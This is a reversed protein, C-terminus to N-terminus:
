KAKFVYRLFNYMHPTVTAGGHDGQPIIQWLHEVGNQSLANHYTSPYEKVVGDNQAASILIMAQSSSPKFQSPQMNGDHHM